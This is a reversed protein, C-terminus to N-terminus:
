ISCCFYKYVKYLRTMLLSYALGELNYMWAFVSNVYRKVKNWISISVSHSSSACSSNAIIGTTDTSSYHHHHHRELFVRARVYDEGAICVSMSGMVHFGNKNESCTYESGSRLCHKSLQAERQDQDILLGEDHLRILTKRLINTGASFAVFFIPLERPCGEMLVKHVDDTLAPHWVSTTALPIGVGRATVIVCTYGAKSM